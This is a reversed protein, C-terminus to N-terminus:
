SGDDWVVTRLATDAKSKPGCPIPRNLHTNATGPSTDTVRVPVALTSIYDTSL